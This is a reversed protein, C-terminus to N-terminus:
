SKTTHPLYVHGIESFVDGFEAFRDKTALFVIEVPFKLKASKGGGPYTVSLSRRVFARPFEALSDNWPTDVLVPLVFVAESLRQERFLAVARDIFLATNSSNGPSIFATRGWDADPRLGDDEEGYRDKAPVNLASGACPDCDIEGLLRSACSVITDPMLWDVGPRFTATAATAGQVAEEDSKALVSALRYADSLSLESLLEQDSVQSGVEASESMQSRLATLIQEWNRAVAMYREATKKKLGTEATFNQEIWKTWNGHGVLVQAALLQRGANAAHMVSSQMSTLCKQHAALIGEKLEGLSQPELTRRSSKTPKREILEDAKAPPEQSARSTLAGKESKAM